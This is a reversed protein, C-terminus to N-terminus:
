QAACTAARLALCDIRLANAHPGASPEAAHEVRELRRQLAVGSPV